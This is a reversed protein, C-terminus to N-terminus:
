EALCSGVISISELVVGGVVFWSFPQFAMLIIGGAAVGLALTCSDVGGNLNEMQNLELKKM